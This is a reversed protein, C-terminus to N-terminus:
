WCFFRQSLYFFPWTPRAFGALGLAIAAAAGQSWNQETKWAAIREMAVLAVATALIDPMATSAMPLFPAIAVLLLAGAIAHARDWGLRLVLSAMAVIAIWVLVLQTM